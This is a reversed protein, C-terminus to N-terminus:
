TEAKVAWRGLLRQERFRELMERRGGFGPAIEGASSQIGTTLLHLHGTKTALSIDPKQKRM